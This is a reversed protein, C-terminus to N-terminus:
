DGLINHGIIEDANRLLDLAAEIPQAPTDSRFRLKQKGMVPDIITLCITHFQTVTDLLGDTEGDFVIRM